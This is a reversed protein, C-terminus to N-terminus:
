ILLLAKTLPVIFFVSQLKIQDRKPFVPKILESNNYDDTLQFGCSRLTTELVNFRKTFLQYKVTLM